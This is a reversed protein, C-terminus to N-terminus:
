NWFVKIDGLHPRADMLLWERTRSGEIGAAVPVRETEVVGLEVRSMKYLHSCLIQVKHTKRKFSSPSVPLLSFIQNPNLWINWNLPCTNFHNCYGLLGTWLGSIEELKLMWLFVTTEMFLFAHFSHLCSRTLILQYCISWVERRTKIAGSYGLRWIVTRLQGRYKVWRSACTVFWAHRAVKEKLHM